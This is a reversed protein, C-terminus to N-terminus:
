GGPPNYLMYIWVWLPVLGGLTIVTLLVLGWTLWDIDIANQTNITKSASNTTTGSSTSTFDGKTPSTTVPQTQLPVPSAQVSSRPYDNTPPKVTSAVELPSEKYSRNLSILVRGFQDATRYRASPEKSLVKLCVRELDAPILPNFQSPPAPLMSRHM